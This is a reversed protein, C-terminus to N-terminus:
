IEELEFVDLSICDGLTKRLLKHVKTPNQGTYQELIRTPQTPDMIILNRDRNNQRKISIVFNQYTTSGKDKNGVSWM